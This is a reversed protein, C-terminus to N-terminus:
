PRLTTERGNEGARAIQSNNKNELKLNQHRGNVKSHEYMYNDAHATAVLSALAASAM